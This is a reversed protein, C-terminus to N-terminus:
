IKSHTKLFRILTISSRKIRSVISFENINLISIGIASLKIKLGYKLCSMKENVVKLLM